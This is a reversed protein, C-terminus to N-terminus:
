RPRTQRRAGVVHRRLLASAVRRARAPLADDGVLVGMVTDDNMDSRFSTRALVRSGVGATGGDSTHIEAFDQKRLHQIVFRDYAGFPVSVMTVPEGILHELTARATVTEAHLDAADLRRWDVHDRGHLGLGMGMGVLLRIDSDTVYGDSGLRGALVFFDASLDREALAPAAVDVDSRNGDDFTVRIRRGDARLEVIRDLISLFRDAPLWFPKEDAPVASPPTGIGHFNVIVQRESRLNM